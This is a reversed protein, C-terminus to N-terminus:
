AIIPNYTGITTIMITPITTATITSSIINKSVVCLLPLLSM